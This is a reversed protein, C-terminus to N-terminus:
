RGFDSSSVITVDKWKNRLKMETVFASLGANLEDFKSHLLNLVNNHHDYGPIEVYFIDRDSKRCDDSNIMEAVLKM